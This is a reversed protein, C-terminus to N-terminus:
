SSIFSEALAILINTCAATIYIRTHIPQTSLNNKIQSCYNINAANLTLVNDELTEKLLLLFLIIVIYLTYNM